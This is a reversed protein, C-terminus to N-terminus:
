SHESLKADEVDPCHKTHCCFKVEVKSLLCAGTFRAVGYNVSLLIVLAACAVSVFRVIHATKRPFRRPGPKEAHQHIAALAANIQSSTVAPKAMGDLAYLRDVIHDLREPDITEASGELDKKIHSLLSQKKLMFAIAAHDDRNNRSM